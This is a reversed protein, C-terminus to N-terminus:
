DEENYDANIEAKIASFEKESTEFVNFGFHEAFEKKTAPEKIDHRKCFETLWALNDDGITIKKENDPGPLQDLDYNENDLKEINYYTDKFHKSCGKKVVTKMVMEPFWKNWVTQTKAVARHKNIEALSLTTLFQGRNNKIVCYAGIIDKDQHDFPSAINHSYNIQGSNKSFSFSDGKYVLQVDILTEPYALYMKNKYAQYNYSVGTNQLTVDEGDFVLGDESVTKFIRIIYEDSKYQMWPNKLQGDKKETQLRTLYAIYNNVQNEPYDKLAEAIAKQNKM